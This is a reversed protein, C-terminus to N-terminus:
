EAGNNYPRIVTAGAVNSPPVVFDSNTFYNDTVVAAYDQDDVCMGGGTPGIHSCHEDPRLSVM